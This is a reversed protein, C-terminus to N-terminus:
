MVVEEIEVVGLDKGDERRRCTDLVSGDPLRGEADGRDEGHDDRLM